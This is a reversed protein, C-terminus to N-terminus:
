TFDKIALREQAEYSNENAVHTFIAFQPHTSFEGNNASHHFYVSKDDDKKADVLGYVTCKKAEEYHM